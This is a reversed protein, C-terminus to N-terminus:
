KKLILSGYFVWWPIDNKRKVRIIVVWTQFENNSQRYDIITVDHLTNIECGYLYPIIM